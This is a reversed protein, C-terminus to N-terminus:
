GGAALAFLDAGQVNLRERSRQAWGEDQEIGIFRRNLKLAAEGTAGSGCFCDLVLAGPRSSTGIIHSLLSVPKECPHKGPRSPVTPFTTWVDTYPRHPTAFFPRRLEEYDVRLEEYDARLEEYDARLYEPVGAERAEFRYRPADHYDDYPPVPRRGHEAAYQRLAEYHPKTPLCWQSRTFFHGGAMSATQCATNADDPTLGAREWEGKLYLRLPEFVFGRLEDCKAGYGAEGKAYSDAGCHEAFLIYEAQPFWARLTDKNQRSWRGGKNRTGNQKVWAIRNLVNLWRGMEVECRAVMNGGMFCYLSGNPKLVRRWEQCLKGYWAIFEDTDAWQRDWALNKQRYPPDTLILDVSSEDMRSMASLCDDCDIRFDM